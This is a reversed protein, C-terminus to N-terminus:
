DNENVDIVEWDPMDVEVETDYHEGFPNDRAEEETCNDVFVDKYVECKVRVIWNKKDKKKDKAM